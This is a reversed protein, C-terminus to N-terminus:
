FDGGRGWGRVGTSRVFLWIESTRAVRRQVAASRSLPKAEDFVCWQNPTPLPGADSRQHFAASERRLALLASEHRCGSRWWGHAAAGFFVLRAFGRARTRTDARSVERDGSRGLDSRFHGILRHLSQRRRGWRSHTKRCLSAVSACRLLEVATARGWFKREEQRKEGQQDESRTFM